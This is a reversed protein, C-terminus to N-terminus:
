PRGGLTGMQWLEGLTYEKLWEGLNLTDAWTFKTNGDVKDSVLVENPQLWRVLDASHTAM